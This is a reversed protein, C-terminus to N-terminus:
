ENDLFPQAAKEALEDLNPIELDVKGDIMRSERYEARGTEPDIARKSLQFQIAKQDGRKVAKVHGDKATMNLWQRAAEMKNRFETDKKLWEYYTKTSIGAKICAQTINYDFMFANELKKVTGDDKKTPRGGIGKRSKRRDIKPSKRSKPYNRKKNKEM